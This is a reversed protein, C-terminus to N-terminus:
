PKSGLGPRRKEDKSPEKPKPKEEPTKQQDEVAPLMRPVAQKGWYYALTVSGLFLLATVVWPWWGGEGEEGLWGGGSQKQLDSMWRRGPATRDFQRVATVVKGVQRRATANDPDVELVALYAWVAEGLEGARTLAEAQGLGDRLHSVYEALLALDTQCKRCKRAEEELIERCMPCKIM